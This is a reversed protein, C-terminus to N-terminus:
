ANEGAVRRARQANFWWEAVLLDPVWSIWALLAFGLQSVIGGIAFGAMFLGAPGGPLVGPGLYVHASWPRLSPYRLRLRGSFQLPCLLLFLWCCCREAPINVTKCGPLSRGALPVDDPIKRPYQRIGPARRM